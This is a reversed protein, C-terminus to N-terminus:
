NGTNNEDKKDPILNKVAAFNIVEVKPNGDPGIGRNPSMSEIDERTLVRTEQFTLAVDVVAPSGDVMYNAGDSNFTTNVSTLYSSFIKPFYKSEGGNNIFQITWVPPYDLTFNNTSSQSNAYSFKRFTEQIGLMEATEAPNDAMMKFAFSFTRIQNGAFSTNTNPNAISRSQLKMQEAFPNIGLDQLIARGQGEELAFSKKFGDIFGTNSIVDKFDSYGGSAAQAGLASILGLDVTGYTASDGFSVGAPIPLAITHPDVGQGVQKLCTFHMFVGPGNTELNTPFILNKADSVYNGSASDGSGFIGSVAGKVSGAVAGIGKTILNGGLGM